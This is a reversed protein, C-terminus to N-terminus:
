KKGFLKKVQVVLKGYLMKVTEPHLFAYTILMGGFLGVIFGHM